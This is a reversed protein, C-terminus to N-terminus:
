EVVQGGFNDLLSQVVKDEQVYTPESSEATVIVCEVGLSAGLVDALVEQLVHRNKLEHIQRAHFDYRVGIQLTGDVVAAPRGIRLFSFLSFNKEKVKAIVQPWAVRVAEITIAATAARAQATAPDQVLPTPASGARASGTAAPLASVPSSKKKAAPQPPVAPPTAAPQPPPPVVAAPLAARPMQGVGGLEVLALELPLQPIDSNKFELKRRILTGLSASVEGLSMRGAIATVRTEQDAPLEVGYDALRGGLKVLLVKRLVEILASTFTPLDVGQEAFENVLAVGDAVQRDAIRDALDLVAATDAYPVVLQLQALTLNGSSGSLATGLLSEADRLSGDARQAIATIVADDATRKEQQLLWTLRSRLDDLALRRFDFRQCRSVITAPLKHPETTALIFLVHAPPEELTKLLANFAATSLMHVEAIIFVKYRWRSPSFRTSGIINDRVHDVGTHSAADIEILDLSSGATMETCAACANCPESGQGRRTCNAARALIRALSTKGVGRSGCFLYAHGLMDSALQAQLTTKVHVQGVVAAFTQPRYTRYLTGSMATANYGAVVM